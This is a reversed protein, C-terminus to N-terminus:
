RECAGVDGLMQELTRSRGKANANMPPRTLVVKVVNRTRAPGGGGVPPLTLGGRLTLSGNAVQSPPLGANAAARCGAYDAGVPFKGGYDININNLWPHGASRM